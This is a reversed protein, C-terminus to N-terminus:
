LRVKEEFVVTKFLPKKLLFSKLDPALSLEKIGIMDLQIINQFFFKELFILSKGLGKLDSVLEIRRIGIM